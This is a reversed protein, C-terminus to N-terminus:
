EVNITISEMATVDNVNYAILIYTRSKNPTIAIQGDIPRNTLKLEDDTVIECSTADKTEWKLTVLAGKEISTASATFSIIEETKGVLPWVCEDVKEIGLIDVTSANLVYWTLTVTDGPLIENQSATFFLVKPAKPPEYISAMAGNSIPLCILSLICTIMFGTKLIGLISKKSKM